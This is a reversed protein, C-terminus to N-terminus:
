IMGNLFENRVVKVTKIGFRKMIDICEASIKEGSVVIPVAPPCPVNVSACVRDLALEVPIEESPLFTAERVTIVKEPLKFVLKELAIHKRESFIDSLACRVKKFTDENDYPSFLMVVYTNDAFECEIQRKQLQEMLARGNIGSEPANITFHLPEHAFVGKKVSFKGSMENSLRNVAKSVYSLDSKIGNELYVNCLDLSCSILYSPSTSAFLLMADKALQIYRENGIHLYAAGTLAPLMKHASDCCMDAGLCVPHLNEGEYFPLCAGHANDVILVAGYRHCVEALSKVDYICGLYDPSTVYLCANETVRLVEEVKQVSVKGSIVTDEYELSIWFPDIDLLVCASLFSRHANRFAIVNRNEYKMLALMTQICQTSGHVSYFTAKTNFIRTANKESEYIIGEKEFLNGANTIETIDLAHIQSLLNGASKGKHGPMHMRLIDSKSYSLLFDYIPTNM